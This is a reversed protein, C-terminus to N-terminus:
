GVSEQRESKDLKPYKMDLDELEEVIASGIILDRFWKHDAPVVYWQAWPTSTKAIADEYASMYKKWLKREPIDHTSFKWEKKPDDLREELREKQEGKTIHLYFKLILTGENSLMKEFDNIESYRKEWLNKPVLEHVREVLVGEYHSRNFIVIEGSQPVEKHFRWLFDHSKEEESPTKFEAVRVGAPSVGEFLMNITSDKGGCDMGQLVILVKHKKEAYLLDQLKELKKRLKKV